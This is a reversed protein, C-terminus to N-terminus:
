RQELDFQYFNALAIMRVINCLKDHSLIQNPLFFLFLTTM